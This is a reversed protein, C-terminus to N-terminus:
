NRIARPEGRDPQARIAVRDEQHHRRPHHRGGDLGQPTDIPSLSIGIPFESGDKHAGWLDLGLGLPRVQPERFCQARHGPHAGRVRAPVLIEVPQGLLEERRYGFLRETQGNVLLIAGDRSALVMADPASEIFSRFLQEAKHHKTQDRIAALM